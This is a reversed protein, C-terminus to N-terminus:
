GYAVVFQSSLVLPVGTQSYIRASTHGYGHEAQNIEVEYWLWTDSSLTESLESLPQIFELNWTVTACPAPTKLKQVIAPPWADILAVLHANTLAGQAEKFRMWGHLYNDKSNSFPFGGANYAFEIHQTFEPTVGKIYPLRQGSGAEGTLKDPYAIQISSERSKAFCATIHTVLKDEQTLQGQIHSVSKGARLIQTTLHCEQETFLPGCFNVSLSRLADEDSLNQEIKHLLLAASLGGFTTRGQAWSPDVILSDRSSAHQLYEDFIM